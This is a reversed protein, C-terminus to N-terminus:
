DNTLSDYIAQDIITIHKQMTYHQKVRQRGKEGMMKALSRDQALKLMANAMADVDQEEVLLGTEGHVIVDQIGAHKTSVVPLKAANAELIAVPTGESDGDPAIISHQVFCFANQYAEVIKQHSVAGLFNISNQIGLKEVLEKCKEFLPGDGAMTLTAEPIKQVVKYFAEITLHPAKKNVFRGVALFNIQTLPPNLTFFVDNPACPNVILKETPAGLKILRQKMEESVVILHCAYRFMNAYEKKYQKMLHYLYADYGHFYVILPIGLRECVAYVEAGVPGFEALVIEIKKKKFFRILSPELFLNRYTRVLKLKYFLKKVKLNENIHYQCNSSEM